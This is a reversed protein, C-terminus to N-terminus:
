EITLKNILIRIVKGHCRPCNNPEGEEGPIITTDTAGVYRSPRNDVM